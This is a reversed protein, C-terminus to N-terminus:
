DTNKLKEAVNKYYEFDEMVFGIMMRLQSISHQKGLIKIQPVDAQRRKRWINPLETLVSVTM